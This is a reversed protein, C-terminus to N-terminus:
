RGADAGKSKRLIKGLKNWDGGGWFCSFAQQGVGKKGREKKQKLENEKSAMKSRFKAGANHYM